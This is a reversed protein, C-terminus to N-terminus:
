PAPARRRERPFKLYPVIAENQLKGTGDYTLSVVPIGTVAQIDRTMAETVLGPCCFVPSVQIFLALDPHTEALHFVKLLNDFSEGNHEQRVGFRSLFGDTDPRLPPEPPGLFRQFSRLSDAALVRMARYLSKVRLLQGFEHQQRWKLFYADAVIRVYETYPTTVAVGGAEEVARVLNQNLVDNDRV